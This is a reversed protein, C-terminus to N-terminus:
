EPQYDTPPAPENCAVGAIVGIRCADWSDFQCILENNSALKTAHMIMCQGTVEDRFCLFNYRRQDILKYRFFEGDKKMPAKKTNPKEICLKGVSTTRSDSKTYM